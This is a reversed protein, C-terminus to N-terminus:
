KLLLLKRTLVTKGTSLRYLYVGSSVEKGANNKGDWRLQHQGAMQQGQWLKRVKQGLLNYIEVKIESTQPLYFEITTGSNFPNPYNQYLVFDEPVVKLGPEIAVPLSKISTISGASIEYINKETAAYLLDTGSKKHMGIVPRDVTRYLNFTAAHDTSLYIDWDKSLYVVGSVSQDICFSMQVTDDTVLQWSDGADASKLFYSRYYFPSLAYIHNSDPDFWMETDESWNNLSDVLSYSIGGNLSRSLYHDGGLPLSFLTQDDFPSMSIMLYMDLLIPSQVPSWSVGADDSRLLSPGSTQGASYVLSDNQFSIEIRDLEGLNTYVNATDYRAIYATADIWVGFGCYIYTAPNNDWFKFDTVVNYRQDNPYMWHSSEQILISDTQNTLNLHYVHNTYQITGGIHEKYFLHTNGLTDEMGRFENFYPSNQADTIGSLLASVMLFVCIFRGM